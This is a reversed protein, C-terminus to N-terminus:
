GAGLLARARVFRKAELAWHRKVSHWVDAAWLLGNGADDPPPPTGAETPSYAEIWDRTAKDRALTHVIPVTVHNYTAPLPVSRVVATGGHRFQTTEKVGPLTWAIPDFAISFGTFEDVTDPILHLKAAMNWQSPLLLAAGGAGVSSVYSVTLGVVPREVNTLPDLISTREEADDTFPNWVRITEDFGGALEYLVKVAQVGGQSHGIMMPRMGDHEYYWAILGAIQTSNEYPSHSWRLDGPHRIRNEPYGMGTLFRGTSVMVLHVPFVGGHLLIIRPAPGKALTNRVDDASIHEPDLALIREELAHDIAVSRLVSKAEPRTIKAPAPLSESISKADADSAPSPAVPPQTACGAFAITVAALLAINRARSFPNM